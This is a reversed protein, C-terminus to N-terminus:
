IMLFSLPLLLCYAVLWFGRTIASLWTEPAIWLWFDGLVSSYTFTEMPSRLIHWWALLRTAGGHPGEDKEVRSKAWSGSRHSNCCCTEKGRVETPKLWHPVSLHDSPLLIRYKPNGSQLTNLQSPKQTPLLESIVRRPYGAMGQPGWCGVWLMTFLRRKFSGEVKCNSFAMQERHPGQRHLAEALFPLFGVHPFRFLSAQSDLFTLELSWDVLLEVVQLRKGERPM